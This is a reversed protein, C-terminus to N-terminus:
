EKTKLFLSLSLSLSLPTTWTRLEVLKKERSEMAMNWM